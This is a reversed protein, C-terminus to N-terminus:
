CPLVNGDEIKLDLEEKAALNKFAANSGKKENAHNPTVELSAFVMANKAGKSAKARFGNL